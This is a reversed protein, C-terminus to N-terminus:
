WIQQNDHKQRYMSWVLWIFYLIKPHASLPWKHNQSFTNAVMYRSNAFIAWHYIHCFLDIEKNSFSVQRKSFYLTLRVYICLHDINEPTVTVKSYTKSYMKGAYTYIYEKSIHCSFKFINLWSRHYQGVLHTENGFYCNYYKWQTPGRSMLIKKEWFNM